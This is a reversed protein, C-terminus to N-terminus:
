FSRFICSSYLDQPLIRVQPLRFITFHVYRAKSPLNQSIDQLVDLAADGDASM